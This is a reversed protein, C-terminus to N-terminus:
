LFLYPVAMLLIAIIFCFAQVLTLLARMNFFVASVIIVPSAFLLGVSIDMGSAEKIRGVLVKGVLWTTLSLILILVAKGAGTAKTEKYTARIDKLTSKLLVEAQQKTLGEDMSSVKEAMKAKLKAILESAFDEVYVAIKKLSSLFAMFLGFIFALSGFFLIGLVALGFQYGELNRMGFVFYAWVLVVAVSGFIFPLVVTAMHKFFANAATVLSSKQASAETSVAM